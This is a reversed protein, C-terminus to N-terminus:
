YGTKIQAVLEEVSPIFTGGRYFPDTKFRHAIQGSFILGEDAPAGHAIDQLARQICFSRPDPMIVREGKQDWGSFLCASLCGSCARMDEQIRAYKEDNAFMLTGGPTKLANVFGGAKLAELRARDGERVYVTKGSGAMVVPLAFEGEASESFEVQRGLSDELEKLFGNRLASSYLGTPSFQQLVVDGPESNMLRLKVDDGIPSERVVMTRTGFQFAVPAIEKDEIYDKWENLWWVGGAIVIPVAVLGVSNMFKRIERLRALPKEPADKNDSGSLGNHGGAIWPDEYIVAGIWDKFKSYSRKWLLQLARASSVIPNYFVKNNACIESLQFPMGAGCSISRITGKARSLVRELLERSAGQEWLINMAVIGRGRSEEHAIAAQDLCGQVGLDVLSAQRLTRSNGVPVPQVSKGDIILDPNVGSFTGMCDNAAFAGATKGTSVNIGKGGEIIPLIERGALLISKLNM